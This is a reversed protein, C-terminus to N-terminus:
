EFICDAINLNKENESEIDNGDSAINGKFRGDNVNLVDENYIAGGKFSANKIFSSDNITLKGKNYVAGGEFESSNSKFLSGEVNLDAGSDIYIAGGYDSRNEIFRSDKIQLKSKTYIAGGYDNSSNDIFECSEVTLDGNSIIAGGSYEFCGNKFIINKLTVKSANVNLLPKRKNGDITHGNGDIILNDANIEIGVKYDDEEFDELSVDETLAIEEAGNNILQELEKFNM